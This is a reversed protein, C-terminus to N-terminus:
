QTPVHRKLEEFWNLVANIQTAAEEQEASEQILVFRQGDPSGSSSTQNRESAALRQARFSM